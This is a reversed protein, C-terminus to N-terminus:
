STLSFYIKILSAYYWAQSNCSLLTANSVKVFVKDFLHSKVCWQKPNCDVMPYCTLCLLFNGGEADSLNDAVLYSLNVTIKLM